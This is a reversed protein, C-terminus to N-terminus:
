ALLDAVVPRGVRDAQPELEGLELDEAGADQREMELSALRLLHSM